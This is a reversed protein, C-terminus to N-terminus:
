GIHYFHNIMGYPVARLRFFKSGRPAFEKRYSFNGNQFPVCNFIVAQDLLRWKIHTVKVANQSRWRPYVESIDAIPDRGPRPLPLPGTVVDRCM